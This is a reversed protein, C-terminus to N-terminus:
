LMVKRGPIASESTTAAPSRVPPTEQALTRMEPVEAPSRSQYPRVPWSPYPLSHIPPSDSAEDLDHRERRSTEREDPQGRWHNSIAIGGAVLLALVLMTLILGNGADEQGLVTDAETSSKATRDAEVSQESVVQKSPEGGLSAQRMSDIISIAVVFFIALAGLPIAEAVQGTAVFRIFAGLLLLVVVIVSMSKLLNFMPEFLPEGIGAVASFSLTLLLVGILPISVFRIMRDFVNM